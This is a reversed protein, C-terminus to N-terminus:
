IFGNYSASLSHPFYIQDLPIGAEVFPLVIDDHLLYGDRPEAVVVVFKADLPGESPIYLGSNLLKKRM